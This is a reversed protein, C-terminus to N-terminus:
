ARGIEIDSIGQRHTGLGMQYQNMLEQGGMQVAQGRAASDREDYREHIDNLMRQYKSNPDDSYPIGQNHLRQRASELERERDRELNRTLSRYVEDEIRQRGADSSDFAFQSYNNVLGQSQEMGSHTLGEGADLIKQQGESLYDKKIPRGDPGITFETGGLPGQTNPNWWKFQEESELGEGRLDTEYVDGPRKIPDFSNNIFVDN